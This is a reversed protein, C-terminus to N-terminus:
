KVLNKEMVEEIMEWLDEYPIIETDTQNIALRAPNAHLIKKYKSVYRATRKPHYDAEPMKLIMKIFCNSRLTDDKRLYKFSYQKLSDMKEQIKGYQKKILYYILPVLIVAINLGRKEKQVSQTENIFKNIRLQKLPFEFVTQEDVKDMMILLHCFARRIEWSQYLNPYKRAEGDEFIKYTVKVLNDYARLNAYILYEFGFLRIYGRSLKKVTRLSRLEEVMELASLFDAKKIKLKIIEKLIIFKSKKSLRKDSRIFALARIAVSEAKDFENYYTYLFILQDYYKIMFEQSQGKYDMLELSELIKRGTEQFEPNETGSVYLHSILDYNNNLGLFQDFQVRYVQALENYKFFKKRNPLIYSNISKLANATLLSVTINGVRKAEEHVYELLIMGNKLGGRYILMEAKTYMLLLEHYSMVGQFSIPSTSELHILLKRIYRGKFRQFSTRNEIGLFRQAEEEDRVKGKKIAKFLKFYNNDGKTKSDQFRGYSIVKRYSITATM